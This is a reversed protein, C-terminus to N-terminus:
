VWFGESDPEDDLRDREVDSHPVGLDAEIIQLPQRQRRRQPPKPLMDRYWRESYGPVVREIGLDHAYLLLYLYSRPMTGPSAAIVKPSAADGPRYSLAERDRRSRPLPRWEFGENELLWLFMECTSSSQQPKEAPACVLPESDSLIDVMELHKLARSTLAWEKSHEDDEPCPQVLLVPCTQLILLGENYTTALTIDLPQGVLVGSADPYAGLNVMATVITTHAENCLVEPHRCVYAVTSGAWCCCRRQLEIFAEQTPCSLASLVAVRSAVGGEILAAKSMAALGAAHHYLIEHSTLVAVNTPLSRGSALSVPPLKM